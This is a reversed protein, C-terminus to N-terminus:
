TISQYNMYTSMLVILCDVFDQSKCTM